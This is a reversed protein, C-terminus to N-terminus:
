IALLTNLVWDFIKLQLEKHFYDFAFFRPFLEMKPTRFVSTIAAQKQKCRVKKDNEPRLEKVIFTSVLRNIEKIFCCVLKLIIFVEMM